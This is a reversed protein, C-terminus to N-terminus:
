ESSEKVELKMVVIPHTSFATGKCAVASRRIAAAAAAHMSRSDRSSGDSDSNCSQEIRKM